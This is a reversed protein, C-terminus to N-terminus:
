RLDFATYMYGFYMITYPICQKYIGMVTICVYLLKCYALLSLSTGGTCGWSQQNSFGYMTVSLVANLNQHRVVQVGENLQLQAGYGWITTATKWILHFESANITDNNITILSLNVNFYEAPVAINAYNKYGGKRISHDMPAPALIYSNLYQERSPVSLMFPNSFLLDMYFSRSFQFVGIQYNSEVVCYDEVLLERFQNANLVFSLEITVKGNNISTCLINVRTSDYAAFVKIVYGNRLPTTVVETGWTGIPQVQEILLDCQESTLPINACEHGSFVSISNNATIRTGSIDGGRVQLYFTQFRHIVVTRFEVPYGPIFSNNTVGPAFPHRITVSPELIIKTNNVTGIILAVSDKAETNTGSEGLVSAVIYEYRRGAPLSIIPLALYADNSGSEEHQGFVILKRDDEAKIHIGNFEGSSDGTVVFKLPISIFTLQGPYAVSSNLLGENTSVNFNVSTSGKTTIWLVPPIMESENRLGFRNKFFGVFFENGENTQDAFFITYM